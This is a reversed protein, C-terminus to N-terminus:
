EYDSESADCIEYSIDGQVYSLISEFNKIGVSDLEAAPAGPRDPDRFYSLCVPLNGFFALNSNQKVGMMKVMSANLEVWFAVNVHPILSFLNGSGGACLFKVRKTVSALLQISMFNRPTIRSLLERQFRGGLGIIRYESEAARCQDALRTFSPKIEAWFCNDEVGASALEDLAGAWVRAAGGNHSARWPEISDSANCLVHHDFRHFYTAALRSTYERFAEDVGGQTMHSWLEAEVRGNRLMVITDGILSMVPLQNMTGVVVLRTNTRDCEMRILVYEYTMYHEVPNFLVYKSGSFQGRRINLTYNDFEDLRLKSEDVAILKLKSNM